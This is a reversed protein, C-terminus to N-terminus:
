NFNAWLSTEVTPQGNITTTFEIRKVSVVILTVTELPKTGTSTSSSLPQPQSNSSPLVLPTTPGDADPVFGHDDPQGSFGVTISMLGIAVVSLISSFRPIPPGPSDNSSPPSGGIWPNTPPPSSAQVGQQYDNVGSTCAQGSPNANEIKLPLATISFYPTGNVHSGEYLTVKLSPNM